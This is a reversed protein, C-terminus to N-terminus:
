LIIVLEPFHHEAFQLLEQPSPPRGLQEPDDTPGLGHRLIVHPMDVSRCPDIAEHVGDRPESQGAVGVSADPDRKANVTPFLGRQAHETM